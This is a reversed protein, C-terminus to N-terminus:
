YQPETGAFVDDGHCAGGCYASQHCNACTSLQSEKVATGHSMFDFNHDTDIGKNHCDKCYQETHCSGCDGFGPTHTASWVSYLGAKHTFVYFKDSHTAPPIEDAIEVGEGGVQPFSHCTSCTSPIRENTLKGNVVKFHAGDHCRFCGGEDKHGFFNPFAESSTNMGTSIVERYIEKIAAVATALKKKDGASLAARTSYRTAWSDIAKDAAEVTKYSGKIVRVANSKIYPLTQAIKGATIADDVASEPDQIDHGVRNHCDICDMTELELENKLRKIDLNVYEQQGIEHMSIWSSVQGNEDKLQVLPIEGKLGESYFELGEAVHWHFGRALAKFQEAGTLAGAEVHSRPRLTLAVTEATNNLDDKYKVKLITRVPNGAQNIVDMQHCKQCTEETPPLKPHEIPSLPRTHTNFILQKLEYLGAVKASVWGGLGPRVHCEGCEVDAHTGAHYSKREPEMTHCSTCFSASESYPIFWMIGGVFIASALALSVIGFPTRPLRFIKRLWRLKSTKPAPVMNEDAM